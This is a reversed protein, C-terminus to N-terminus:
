DYVDIVRGESEVTADQSDYTFAYEFSWIADSVSPDSGDDYRSDEPVTSNTVISYTGEVDTLDGSYEVSYPSDGGLADFRCSNDEYVTGHRVDIRVTNGTAQIDTCQTSGDDITVEDTGADVTVDLNSSGAIDIELTGSSSSDTDITVLFKGIDGSKSSRILDWSGSGNNNTFNGTTDQEIISGNEVSDIYELSVFAGSGELTRNALARNLEDFESDAMSSTPNEEAIVAGMANGVEQGTVGGEKASEVTGESGVVQTFLATNVILVLGLVVLAIAIAGVLILQGRDDSVM